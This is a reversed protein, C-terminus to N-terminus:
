KRKSRWFFTLLSFALRIRQGKAESRARQTARIARPACLSTRQADKPCTRGKDPREQAVRWRIVAPSCSVRAQPPTRVRVRKHGHPRASCRLPAPILPGCTRLGRLPCTQPCGGRCSCRLSARLAGSKPEGKKQTSKKPSAFFLAEAAPGLGPVGRFGISLSLSVLDGSCELCIVLGLWGGWLRRM